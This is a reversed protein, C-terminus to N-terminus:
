RSFMLGKLGKLGKLVGIARATHYLFYVQLMSFFSINDNKNKNWLRFAYLVIPIAYMFVSFLSLSYNRSVLGAFFLFSFVILWVPVLISPYEHLPIKRGKLSNLNATGRWIEKKFFGVPDKDEGLHIYKVKPTIFLKGLKAAEGTFFVDECTKLHEPFGNVKEFTERALFLNGAPLHQINNLDKSNRMITRIREISSANLSPAQLTSVIVVSSDSELEDIMNKLWVPPIYIDADLLALFKASGSKVGINRLKSITDTEPRYIIEIDPEESSGGVTKLEDIVSDLDNNQTVVTIMIKNLDYDQNIISKLTEVLLDVRGKHPIVFQVRKM